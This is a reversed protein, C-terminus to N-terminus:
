RCSLYPLLHTRLSTAHLCHWWLCPKRRMYPLYSSDSYYGIIAPTIPITLIYARLWGLQSFPWKVFLYISWYTKGKCTRYWVWMRRSTASGNTLISWRHKEIWILLKILAGIGSARQRWSLRWASPQCCCCQSKWEGGQHRSTGSRKIYLSWSFNGLRNSMSPPIHKYTFEVNLQNQIM